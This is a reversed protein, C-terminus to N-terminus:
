LRHHYLPIPLPYPPHIPLRFHFPPTSLLNSTSTLMESPTEGEPRRDAMDSQTNNAMTPRSPSPAHQFGQPQFTLVPPCSQTLIKLPKFITLGVVGLTNFCSEPELAVLRGIEHMSPNGTIDCLRHQHQHAANFGLGPVKANGYWYRMGTCTDLALRCVAM